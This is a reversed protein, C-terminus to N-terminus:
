LEKVMRLANEKPNSYYNKIIGCVEFGFKKYLSIAPLNNERVELCFHNVNKEDLENMVASFIMEGIKKKRMEPLVGIHTIDASDLLFIGGGFGVPEGNIEAYYIVREYGVTDAKGKEGVYAEINCIKAIHELAEDLTPNGDQYKIIKIDSSDQSVTMM